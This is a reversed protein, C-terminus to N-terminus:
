AKKCSRVKMESFRVEIKANKANYAGLSMRSHEAAYADIFLVERLSVSFKTLLFYRQM